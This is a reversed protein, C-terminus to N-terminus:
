ELVTNEDIGELSFWDSDLWSKYRDDFVINKVKVTPYCDLHMSDLKVSEDILKINIRIAPKYYTRSVFISEAKRYKRISQSQLKSKDYDVVDFAQNLNIGSTPSEISLIFSAAYNPTSENEKFIVSASRPTSHSVFYLNPFTDKEIELDFSIYKMKIPIVRVDHVCEAGQKCSLLLVTSIFIYTAKAM